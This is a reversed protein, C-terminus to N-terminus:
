LTGREDAASRVLRTELGEPPEFDADSPLLAALTPGSGCMVVGAAGADLLRGKAERIASHRRTVADELDNYLLAGLLEPKGSEIAELLPEPDSGTHGGDEDWWRFADATSVGFSFTVLALELSPVPLSEVREGRGRAVAAGGVLLAPVDSGITEGVERLAADDLGAGWLDNLARLTAAADASGGGLGAAAPVRKELTIDAFGLAGTAEALAHGARMILNSGNVPVARILNPDGTVELSLVLTHFDPGSDAHIELHDGFDIPLVLTELEHYGDPRRGLIRLFLNIKAQADVVATNPLGATM